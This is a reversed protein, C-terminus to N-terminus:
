DDLASKEPTHGPQKRKVLLLIHILMKLVSSRSSHIIGKFCFPCGVQVHIGLHSISDAHFAVDKEKMRGVDCM